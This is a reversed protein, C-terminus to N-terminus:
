VEQEDEHREIRQIIGLNYIMEQRFKEVDGAKIYGADSTKSAILVQGRTVCSELWKDLQDLVYHMCVRDDTM